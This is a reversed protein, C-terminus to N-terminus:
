PFTCEILIDSGQAGGRLASVTVHVIMNDKKCVFYAGGTRTLIEQCDPSPPNERYFTIVQGVSDATLYARGGDKEADPDEQANAYVAVSDLCAEIEPSTSSPTSEAPTDAHPPTTTSAQTPESEMVGSTGDGSTEGCASLMPLLLALVLYPVTLHKSLRPMDIEREICYVDIQRPKVV